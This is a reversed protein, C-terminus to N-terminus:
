SLYHLQSLGRVLRELIQYIKMYVRQTIHSPKILSTVQCNTDRQFTMTANQGASYIEAPNEYIILGLLM